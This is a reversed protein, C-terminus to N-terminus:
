KLVELIMGDLKLFDEISISTMNGSFFNDSLYIFSDDIGVVNVVRSGGDLFVTESEFGSNDIAAIICGNEEICQEVRSKLESKSCNHIPTSIIECDSSLEDIYESFYESQVDCKVGCLKEKVDSFVSNMCMDLREKPYEEIDTAISDIEETDDYANMLEQAEYSLDTIEDYPETESLEDPFWDFELENGDFINEFNDSM